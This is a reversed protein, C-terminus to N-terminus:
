STHWYRAHRRRYSSTHIHQGDFYVTVAGADDTRFCGIGRALYRAFIEPKPHHYRNRYGVQFIALEPQVMQLFQETSSTGSGHHPVLLVQAQLRVGYQQVLAREQAAEIDGTLLIASAGVSIKLVCSRANPRADARGAAAAPPHLIEFLVGDWRWNQGAACSFDPRLMRRLVHQEPLSSRLEAVELGRVIAAAGGIHDYDGHSLVLSDLRGIARAQLYPLIIREGANSSGSFVGGTDYLLRHQATEILVAMGQGVDFAILQLHGPRPSAPQAALLPIWSALGLWRMPWGRPALLWATGLVGWAVLWSPAVPAHWVAVPLAAAGDLGRSLAAVVTHAVLLLASCVPQPCVSGLLALPTVVLSILPIALANALPSLLSVQAFLLVSLPLLGLTIVYQSHMAAGIVPRLRAVLKSWGAVGATTDDCRQGVTGSGGYLLLAVAGFSLWFGPWLVAWPDLVVVVLLACALIHSASALRGCWRALAVVLLMYLTRQAPVGWGALLVYCLAALAGALAGVKQAPCCLPLQATTYCSRRWLLQALTACLGAVMTIHLGSISILHSIGSRAYTQWDSRTTTYM